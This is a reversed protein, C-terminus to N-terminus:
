SSTLLASLRLVHKSQWKFVKNIYELGITNILLGILSRVIVRKQYSVTYNSLMESIAIKMTVVM